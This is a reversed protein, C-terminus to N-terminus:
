PALCDCCTGEFAGGAEVDDDGSRRVHPVTRKAVTVSMYQLATRPESRAGQSYRVTCYELLGLTGILQSCFAREWVQGPTNM